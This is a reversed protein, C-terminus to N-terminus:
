PRQCGNGSFDIAISRITTTSLFINISIFEGINNKILQLEDASMLQGRYVNLSTEGAILM